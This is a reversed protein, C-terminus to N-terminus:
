PVAAAEAQLLHKLIFEFQEKTEPTWRYIVPHMHDGRPPYGPSRPILTVVYVDDQVRELPLLYDGPGSWYKVCVELNSVIIRDPISSEGLEKAKFLTRPGEVKNERLQDDNEFHAVVVAQSVLFQPRSLVTPHRYTLALHILYAMWAVFLIAIVIVDAKRRPM